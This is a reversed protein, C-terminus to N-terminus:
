KPPNSGTGPPLPFYSWSPILNNFTFDQNALYIAPYTTIANGNAPDVVIGAVYLQAKGQASAVDTATCLNGGAVTCANVRTSSFTVWYYLKGDSGKNGNTSPLPAWKPLTNQVNGMLSGTCAVPDNAKLRCAPGAVGDCTPASGGSPVVYVDAAPQNYMSLGVAVRNFAIFADDPSWAPYYENYAPDSAGPLPIVTGGAGGLGPGLSNYPVIDIDAPGDNLRGDKTGAQTTTYAIFDTKGDLNHTWSPAGASGTDGNRAIIGWGGNSTQQPLCSGPPAPSTGCPALPLGGGGNTVTVTGTFGLNMWALQSVVGTQTDAASISLANEAAGLSTVVMYDNPAYHGKSFTQMGLMMQNVEPPGYWDGGAQVRGAVPSLNALGGPTLWPPAAGVTGGKLDVSALANPWPWQATFGVYEGDPTATHCGICFVPVPTGPTMGGDGPETAVVQQTVQTSTLIPANGTDGVAFGNLSTTDANPDFNETSWYILAGSAELSAIQFGASGGMSITGGASARVTVTITPGVMSKSLAEWTPLDLTWWTNTTYVVLDHKELPSTLRIEFLNQAASTPAFSVRPTLWGTGDTGGNPFLTGDQPEVLCPGGSGGTGAAGFTGAASTSAGTVTVVCDSGSCSAGTAAVFDDCQASATCASLPVAGPSTPQSGVGTDGLDLGGGGDDGGTGDDGQGFGSPPAAKACAGASAAGLGLVLAGIYAYFRRTTTSSTM